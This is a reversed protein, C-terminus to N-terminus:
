FYHNYYYNNWKEMYKMYVTITGLISAVIGFSLLFYNMILIIKTTKDYFIKNYLLVPFIFTLSSISVNGALSITDELNPFIINLICIIILIIFRIINKQLFYFKSERNVLNKYCTYNELYIFPFINCVSFGLLIALAFISSIYVM